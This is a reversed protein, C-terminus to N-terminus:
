GLVQQEDVAAAFEWYPPDFTLEGVFERCSSGIFLMLEASPVLMAKSRVPLPGATMTTTPAKQSRWDFFFSQAPSAPRKVTYSYSRRPRPSLPGSVSSETSRSTSSKAAIAAWVPSVGNMKPSDEPPAM